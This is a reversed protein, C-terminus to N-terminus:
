GCKVRDTHHFGDGPAGDDDVERMVLKNKKALLDRLEDIYIELISVAFILPKTLKFSEQFMASAVCSIFQAFCLFDVWLAGKKKKKAKFPKLRVESMKMSWPQLTSNTFYMEEALAATWYM